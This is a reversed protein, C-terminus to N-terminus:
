RKTAKPKLCCVIILGILGLFVGGFFWGAKSRGKKGAIVCCLIAFLLQAGTAM